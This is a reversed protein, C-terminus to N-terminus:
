AHALQAQRTERSGRHAMGLMIKGVVLPTALFAEAFLIAVIIAAWRGAIFLAIHVVGFGIFFEVWWAAATILLWSLLLAVVGAPNHFMQALTRNTAQLGPGARGSGRPVVTAVLLAQALFVLPVVFWLTYNAANM